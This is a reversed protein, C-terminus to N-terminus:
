CYGEGVNEAGPVGTGAYHVRYRLQERLNKANRDDPYVHVQTIYGTVSPTGWCACRLVHIGGVTPM